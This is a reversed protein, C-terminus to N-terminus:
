LSSNTDRRLSPHFGLDATSPPFKTGPFSSSTRSMRLSQALSLCVQWLHQGSGQMNVLPAPHSSLQSAWRATLHERTHISSLLIVAKILFWMEKEANFETRTRLSPIASGITGLPFKAWADASCQSHAEPTPWHERLLDNAWRKQFLFMGLGQMDWVM